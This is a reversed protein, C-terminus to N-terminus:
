QWDEILFLDNQLNASSAMADYHITLMVTDDAFTSKFLNFHFGFVQM